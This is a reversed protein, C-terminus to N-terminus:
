KVSKELERLIGDPEAIGMKVIENAREQTDANSYIRLQPANGSPRIHAIDGNSFFIRLGDVSNIDTIKGFGREGSFFNELEKFLTGKGAPEEPSFRRLIEASVERPFNDLM